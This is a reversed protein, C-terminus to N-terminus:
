PTAATPPGEEVAHFGPIEEGVALHGGALTILCELSAHAADMDALKNLLALRGQYVRREAKYYAVGALREPHESFFRRTQEIIEAAVRESESIGVEASAETFDPKDSHGWDVLGDMARTFSGRFNLDAGRESVGRYVVEVDSAGIAKISFSASRGLGAVETVIPDLFHWYGAKITEFWTMIRNREVGRAYSTARSLFESIPQDLRFGVNPM